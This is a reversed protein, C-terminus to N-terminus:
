KLLYATKWTVFDVLTAQGALYKTKWISFDALDVKGDNNYDGPKVLYQSFVDTLIKSSTGSPKKLWFGQCDSDSPNIKSCQNDCIQWYPVGWNLSQNLINKALTVARDEGGIQPDNQPFGTESIFVNKNGFAASDPAKSAVYNLLATFSTPDSKYSSEYSSIGYLDCHTSPLVDNVASKKGNMGKEILNIECAHYIDVGSLPNDKKAQDVSDQISDLYIIANDISTQDPEINNYDCNPCGKNSLMMWDLENPTIIVFKKNTNQYNKILDSAFDYFEKKLINIRDLTFAPGSIRWQNAAEYNMAEATIFITKFPLDLVPKFLASNAVQTLTKNTIPCISLDHYLGNPRIDPTWCLGPSM